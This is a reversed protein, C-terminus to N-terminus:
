QVYHEQVINKIIRQMGFPHKRATCQYSYTITIKSNDTVKSQVISDGIM